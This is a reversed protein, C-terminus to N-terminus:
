RQRRAVDSIEGLVRLVRRGPREASRDMVWGERALARRLVWGHERAWASFEDWEPLSHGRAMWRRMAELM